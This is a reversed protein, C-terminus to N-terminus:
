GLTSDHIMSGHFRTSTNVDSGVLDLLLARFRAPTHAEVYRRTAEPSPPSMVTALIAEGIEVANAEPSLAHIADGFEEFAGILSVITPKGLMLLQSVVGSTEGFNKARLQVAVDVRGMCDILQIDTPGDFLRVDLGALDSAYEAAFGNVGFGAMLLRVQWGAEHLYRVAAIITPTRKARSPAGFTGVTLLEGRRLTPRQAAGRAAMIVEAGRPLFVPHFVRQILAAESDLDDRVLIESAQSNVLFRRVGLNFFYRPGLVNRQRLADHLDQDSAPTGIERTLSKGYIVELVNLLQVPSLRAGMQGLQIVNLLCPDHVYLVCRDLRGFAAIKKLLGHIYVCHHSNGIAIVIARYKQVLDATLFSNVDLLRMAGGSEQRLLLANATFWDFDVVPCFLDVKGRHGMWSYFSCSALGTDEPPMNTVFAIRDGAGVENSTVEAISHEIALSNENHGDLYNKLDQFRRGNLTYYSERILNGLTPWAANVLRYLFRSM